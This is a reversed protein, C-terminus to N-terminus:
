FLKGERRKGSHQTLSLNLGCDCGHDQTPARFPYTQHPHHLLLPTFHSSHLLRLHISRHPYTNSLIPIETSWLSALALHSTQGIKPKPPPLSTFNSYSTPSTPDLWPPPLHIYITFLYLHTHLAKSKGISAALFLTSLPLTSLGAHSLRTQDPRSDGAIAQQTAKDQM